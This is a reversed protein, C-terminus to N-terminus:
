NPGFINDNDNIELYYSVEDGPNITIQALSWTYDGKAEKERNKYKKASIRNIEGNISFVLDVASIGFDDTGEYFLQVKDTNFYVPKPNALFLVINPSLDKALTVPYKKSILREKSEPDKIKFQYFGKEKVLLSSNFSTNNEKKMALMDQENFILNARMVPRNTKASIHAETGPLVHISGDSPKVFKPNKGTYSPFHFSLGLSEISYNINSLSPKVQNKNTIKEQSAQTLKEPTTWREYGKTLLEPIFITILLLSGLAGLFLNRSLIIKSQDIVSSPDIKDLEKSTRRHLEKIFDLSATNKFHSDNLHQSLQNSNILSNNIGPFHSEILLAADDNSFSTTLIKIFHSYIIYALGICFIGIAPFAWEAIPIYSLAALCTLLSFSVIYTLLIYTGHLIHSYLRLRRIRHLFDPIIAQSEM